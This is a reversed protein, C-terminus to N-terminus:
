QYYYRLVRTYSGSGEGKLSYTVLSRQLLNDNFTNIYDYSRTIVPAIAANSLSHGTYVISRYIHGPVSFLHYNDDQLVFGAEYWNALNRYIKKRLAEYVPAPNDKILGTIGQETLTDDFYTNNYIAAVNLDGDYKYDAVQTKIIGSFKNIYRCSDYLLYNGPTLTNYIIRNAWALDYSSGSYATDYVIINKNNGSATTIYTASIGRISTFDTLTQVLEGANNYSFRISKAKDNNTYYIAKEDEIQALRGSVDYSYTRTISDRADESYHVERIRNAQYRFVLSDYDIQQPDTIVVAAVVKETVVPPVLPFHLERQCSLLGWFIIVWVTSARKM